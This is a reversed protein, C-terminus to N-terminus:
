RRRGANERGRDESYRSSWSFWTPWTAFTRMSDESVELLSSQIRRGSTVLEQALSRAEKQASLTEDMVRKAFELGRAQAQLTANVTALYAEAMADYLEEAAAAPMQAVVEPAETGQTQNKAEVTVTPM